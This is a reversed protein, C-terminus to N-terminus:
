GSYSVSEMNINLFFYFIADSILKSVWSPAFNSLGGGGAGEHAKCGLIPFFLLWMIGLTAATFEM